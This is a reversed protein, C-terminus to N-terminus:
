FSFGNNFKKIKRLTLEPNDPKTNSESPVSELTPCLMNRLPTSSENSVYDQNSSQINQLSDYGKENNQEHKSSALSSTPMHDSILMSGKICNSDVAEVDDKTLGFTSAQKLQESLWGPLSDLVSNSLKQIIHVQDSTSDLTSTSDFGGTMNSALKKSEVEPQDLVPGLM